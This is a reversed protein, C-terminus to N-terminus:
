TKSSRLEKIEKEKKDIENRVKNLEDKSVGKKMLKEQKKLLNIKQQMLESIQELKTIAERQKTILKLQRGSAYGCKICFVGIRDEKSEQVLAKKNCQDCVEANKSVSNAVKPIPDYSGEYFGCNKCVAGSFDEQEVKDMPLDCRICVYKLKMKTPKTKKKSSKVSKSNKGKEKKKPM